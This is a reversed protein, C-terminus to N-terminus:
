TYDVYGVCYYFAEEEMDLPIAIETEMPGEEEQQGGVAGVQSPVDRAFDDAEEVYDSQELEIGRVSEHHEDIIEVEEVESDPEDPEAILCCHM